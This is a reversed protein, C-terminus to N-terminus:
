AKYRVGIICVDDLQDLDGKWDDLEKKVLQHQEEVSKESIDTLFRKFKASKYKKGKQGGFQDSFGDTFVYIMDNNELEFQHTKYRNKLVSNGIPQKDAKTEILEGKRIIWLPNNAGAYKLINNEIACLAIDMGDKVEEASKEFEQIVIERTKDLIEGPDSLKFERVSRNLANNCVVSVMAGPVGHGTCDAAAFLSEKGNVELWYFDGAVIDKPAYYVFVDKLTETVLKVPPLIASQIRKAYIISDLIENSKEALEEHAAEIERKQQSIEANQKRSVKLRKFIFFLFGALLISGGIATWSIIEHKQQEEQEYLLQNEHVLDDRVKQKEYEYKAELEHTSQSVEANSLSDSMEVYLQHMSLARKYNGKEELISTLIFASAKIREPYGIETAILLSRDALALASSNDGQRHYVESIAILSESIGSKHNTEERLELAKRFYDLAIEDEDLFFYIGGLNNYSSSLGSKDGIELRIDLSKQYYMLATEYDEKFRYVSGINHLSGAIGPKDNLETRIDLSKKYFKFANDYDHQKRYVLGINNLSIALGRKLGHIEQIIRSKNYFDLANQIEGNSEYVQGMNNLSLALGEFDSITQQILLGETYNKLANDRDGLRYYVYGENNYSGSLAKLLTSKEIPSIDEKLKDLCLKQIKKSLHIVTDINSLYLIGALDMYAGARSTDETQPKDILANLRDIELQHEISFDQSFAQSTIAVQLVLAIIIKKLTTAM